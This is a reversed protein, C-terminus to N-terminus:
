QLHGFIQSDTSQSKRFLGALPDVGALSFAQRKVLQGLLGRSAFTYHQQSTGAVSLCFPM